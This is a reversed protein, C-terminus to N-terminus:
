KAFTRGASMQAHGHPSQLSRHSRQNSAVILWKANEMEVPTGRLLTWTQGLGTCLMYKCLGIFRGADVGYM